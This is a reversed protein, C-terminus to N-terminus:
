RHRYHAQQAQNPRYNGQVQVGPLNLQVSVTGAPRHAAQYKALQAKRLAEMRIREQARALEIQRLRQAEAIRRAEAIRQAEAIRRAEAVRAAQGRYSQQTNCAQPQAEAPAGTLGLTGGILTVAMLMMGSLRKILNM